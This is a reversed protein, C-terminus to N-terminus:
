GRPWQTGGAGHALRHRLLHPLPCPSEDIEWDAYMSSSAAAGPICAWTAFGPQWLDASSQTSTTSSPPNGAWRRWIQWFLSALGRTPLPKRKRGAERKENARVEEDQVHSAPIAYAFTICGSSGKNGRVSLIFPVRILARGATQSELRLVHQELQGGAGPMTPRGESGAGVLTANLTTRNGALAFTHGTEFLVRGRRFRAKPAAHQRCAHWRIGPACDFTRDPALRQM